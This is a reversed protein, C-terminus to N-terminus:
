VSDAQRCEKQLLERCQTQLAEVPQLANLTIVREPENKAIARYGERVRRYFSLTEGEMRDAKGRRNVRKFLEEPPGDFLLTVDPPRGQVALRNLRRILDIDLGRGYGQYAITSDIHRDCLVTKGAELAPLVTDSMHQARDALFLLLESESCLPHSQHLLIDRIQRGFNNGGPNRTM